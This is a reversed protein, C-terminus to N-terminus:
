VIHRDNKRSITTATQQLKKSALIRFSNEMKTEMLKIAQETEM